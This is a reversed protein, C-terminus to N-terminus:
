RLIRSVPQPLDWLEAAVIFATSTAVIICHFISVEVGVMSTLLIQIQAVMSWVVCTVATKWSFSAIPAVVEEKLCAFLCRGRRPPAWANAARRAPATHATHATAARSALVEPELLLLLLSYGSFVVIGAVAFYTVLQRAFHEVNEGDVDYCSAPCYHDM